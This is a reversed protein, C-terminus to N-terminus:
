NKEDRKVKSDFLIDDATIILTVEFDFGRTVYGIQKELKKGSAFEVKISYGSDGKIRFSSEKSANIAIMKFQMVQKCVEVEVLTVEENSKNVATIQGTTRM